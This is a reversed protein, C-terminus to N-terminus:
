KNVPLYRYYVELSMIRIATSCVLGPLHGARPWSGKDRGQKTQIAVVADRFAKNWKKWREGGMQFMGYTGYYTKLPSRIQPGTKDILTAIGQVKPDKKAVGLFIRCFLGLTTRVSRPNGRVGRIGYGTTFDKDLAADYYRKLKSFVGKRMDLGALKASKIAMVQFSTVHSDDGAGSYGFGGNAGMNNVIFDIAKICPRKLARDKTMGYAECLATAAIGHEYFNRSCAGGLPNEGQKRILWELARKVNDRYKGKGKHTHGAGLFALTALGTHGVGAREGGDERGNVTWHGDKCQVKALWALGAAVASESEASAGMKRAVSQSGRQGYPGGSGQKNGPVVPPADDVGTPEPPIVPDKDHSAIVTPDPVDAGSDPKAAPQSTQPRVAAGPGPGGDGAGDGDGEESKGINEGGIGGGPGGEDDKGVGRELKSARPDM